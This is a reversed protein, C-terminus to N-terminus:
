YISTSVLHCANWLRCKWICKRWHFITYKSLFKISIQEWLDLQRYTMMPGPLPKAGTRHWAMVQVLSSGTWWHMYTDAPRVWAIRSTDLLDWSTDIATQICTMPHYSLVISNLCLDRTTASSVIIDAWRPQFHGGSSFCVEIRQCLVHSEM